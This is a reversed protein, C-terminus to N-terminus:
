IRSGPFRPITRAKANYTTADAFPSTFDLTELRPKTIFVASVAMDCNGTAVSALIGSWPIVDQAIKFGAVPRFGNLLETDYGTPTGDKVFEFPRFDDETAINLVGRAKIEALTSARGPAVLGGLSAAVGPGILFGRRTPHFLSYLSM